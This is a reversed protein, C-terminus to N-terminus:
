LEFGAVFTFPEHFKEVTKNFLTHFLAARFDFFATLVIAFGSQVIKPCEDGFLRISTRKRCVYRMAIIEIM